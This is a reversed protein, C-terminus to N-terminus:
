PTQILVVPCDLEDVLLRIDADSFTPSPHGLLLLRLPHQRAWRTLQAAAEAALETVRARLRADDLRRQASRALRKVARTEAAVFATVEDRYAAAVQVATELARKAARTGDWVVVIGAPMRLSRVRKPLPAPRAAPCDKALVVVDGRATMALTLPVLDGRAVQLSWSMGARGASEVLTQRVREAKARLMCEMGSPGLPRSAATSFAIERAFPLGALRMLRDDEVFLGLLEADWAGALHVAMELGALGFPSADVAVL